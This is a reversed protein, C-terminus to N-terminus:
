KWLNSLASIVGMVILRHGSSQQSKGAFGDDRSQRGLSCLKCDFCPVSMFRM